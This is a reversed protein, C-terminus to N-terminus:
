KRRKVGEGVCSMRRVHVVSVSPRVHAQPSCAAVADARAGSRFSEAWEGAATREGRVAPLGIGDSSREKQPHHLMHRGASAVPPWTHSLAAGAKGEIAVDVVFGRALLGCCGLHFRTERDMRGDGSFSPSPDRHPVLRATFQRPCRQHHHPWALLYRMKSRIMCMLGLAM